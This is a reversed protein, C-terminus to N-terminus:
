AIWTALQWSTAVRSVVAIQLTLCGLVADNQGLLVEMGPAHRGPHFKGFGRTLRKALDYAHDFDAPALHHHAPRLALSILALRLEAVDLVEEASLPKV